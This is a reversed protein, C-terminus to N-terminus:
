EEAISVIDRKEAEYTGASGPKVRLTFREETGHTDRAFLDFQCEEADAVVEVEGVFAWWASNLEEIPVVAEIRSGDTHDHFELFGLTACHAPNCRRDIVIRYPGCSRVLWVSQDVMPVSSNVVPGASGCALLWVMPLIHLRM